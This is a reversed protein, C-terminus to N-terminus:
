SSDGLNSAVEHTMFVIGYVGDNDVMTKAERSGGV